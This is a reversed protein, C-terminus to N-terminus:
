AHVRAELRRLLSTELSLDEDPRGVAMPAAAVTLSAVGLIGWM